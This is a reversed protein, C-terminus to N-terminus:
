RKSLIIQLMKLNAVLLFENWNHEYALDQLEYEAHMSELLVEDCDGFLPVLM